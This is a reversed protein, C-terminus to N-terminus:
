FNDCVFCVFFVHLNEYKGLSRVGLVVQVVDIGFVTQHFNGEDRHVLFIIVYSTQSSISVEYLFLLVTFSYLLCLFNLIDPVM